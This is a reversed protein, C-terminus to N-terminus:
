WEMEHSFTKDGSFTKQFDLSLSLQANQMAASITGAYPDFLVSKFTYRCFSTGFM